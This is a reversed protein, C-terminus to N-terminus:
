GAASARPTAASAGALQLTIEVPFHDSGVNSGRQVNVVQWQPSLLCHDIQIGLPLFQTPWTRLTRKGSLADTVGATELAKTFLPSWPTINFDGGAITPMAAGRMWQVLAQLQGDRDRSVRAGLPWPLHVAVVQVSSSRWDIAAWQAHRWTNQLQLPKTERIPWRSFIAAGYRQMSETFAVYPYSPLAAALERIRKGDLEQVFIVDANSHSLYRAIRPTDHNRFWANLTVVKFTPQTTSTVKSASASDILGEAVPTSVWLAAVWMAVAFRVDRLLSLTLACLLLTVAYQVRFHSFLDFVWGRAGLEGLVYGLLASAGLTRLFNRVFRDRTISTPLHM